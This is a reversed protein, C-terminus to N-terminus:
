VRESLWIALRTGCRIAATVPGHAPAQRAGEAIARQRHAAEDARAEDILAELEADSGKLAAKQAAYHDEIVQEVAETCAMATKPGALATAAGLAFGAVHWIPSLLTPRVRRANMMSDFRDLHQREKAAMETIAAAEPRGGLVALQGAYIRVAGYEGAQDVRIMRAERAKIAGDAPRRPNDM